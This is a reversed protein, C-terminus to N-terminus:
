PAYILRFSALKLSREIRNSTRARESKNEFFTGTPNCWYVSKYQEPPIMTVGSVSAGKRSSCGSLIGRAWMINLPGETPAGVPPCGRPWRSPSSVMAVSTANSFRTPNAPNPVEELALKSRCRRSAAGLRSLRQVDGCRRSSSMSRRSGRRISDQAQDFSVFPTGLSSDVSRTETSSVERRRSQRSERERSRTHRNGYNDRFRDCNRSGDDNNHHRHRKRRGGDDRSGDRSQADGRQRNDGGKYNKSNPNDPCKSWEHNHGKKRCMNKNHGDNNRTNADDNNKFNNNNRYRNAPKLQM